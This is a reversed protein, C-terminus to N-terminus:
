VRENCVLAKTDRINFGLTGSIGYKSVWLEDKVKTIREMDSLTDTGMLMNLKPTMIIRRSGNMWSRPKVLCKRDSKPLYLGGGPLMNSDKETYKAVQVEIDDMLLDFDTYSCYVEVGYKRYAEPLQRFLFNFAAYAFVSTNNIVGITDPVVLNNTIDNALRYGFGPCIAEANVKRWRAPTNAPSQGATTAIICRWYDIIGDAAAVFIYNGVAYTPVASYAVADAKDFGFYATKDNLEQAIRMVVQNWTEMAFPLTDQASSSGEAKSLGEELHTKYYKKIEIAEERKFLEVILDREKYNLTGRIQETASYPRVGDGVELETMKFRSKVSRIVTVDNTVDMSNILTSFIKKEYQGAYNAFAIIPSVVALNSGDTITSIFDGLHDAVHGFSDNVFTLMAVCM